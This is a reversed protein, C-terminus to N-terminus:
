ETIIGTSLEIQVGKGQPFGLKSLSQAVLTQRVDDYLSIEQELREVLKQGGTIRMTNAKIQSLKWKEQAILRVVESIEKLEKEPIVKKGLVQAIFRRM